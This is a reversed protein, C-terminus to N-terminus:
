IRRGKLSRLRAIDQESYIRQGNAVRRPTIQGQAEWRKLTSESVEVVDAAEGISYLREAFQTDNM